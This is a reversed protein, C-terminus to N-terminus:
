TTFLRVGQKTEMFLKNVYDKGFLECLEDRPNKKYTPWNEIRKRHEILLKKLRDENDAMWEVYEKLRTEMKKWYQYSLWQKIRLELLELKMEKLMWNITAWQKLQKTILKDCKDKDIWKSKFPYSDYLIDNENKEISEDINIDKSIFRNSWEEENKKMTGNQEMTNWETGNQEVANNQAKDNSKRKEDWQTYQNWTHSKGAKSKKQRNEESKEISFIAWQMLSLIVPDTPEIGYLWYEMLSDYYQKWLEPPLNKWTKYFLEYCKFFQKGNMDAQSMKSLYSIFTSNKHVCKNM